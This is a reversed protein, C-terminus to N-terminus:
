MWSHIMVIAFFAAIGGGSLRIAWDGVGRSLAIGVFLGALHLLGTAILMGPFYDWASANGMEAVHAHGHCIAFIAVMAIGAIVPIKPAVAVALGFILVSLMIGWEFAAVGDGGWVTGLLGGIAMMGVFAAPLTWMRKAQMRASLLGVAVMALLHDLGHIPHMFGTFFLNEDHGTHALAPGAYALAILTMPLYMLAARNLKLM